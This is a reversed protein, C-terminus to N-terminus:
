TGSLIHMNRLNPDKIRDNVAYALPELEASASGLETAIDEAIREIIAQKEEAESDSNGSSILQELPEAWGSYKPLSLLARFSWKYYPMYKKSLLFAIQLASKAFEIAALQAAATDGRKLCRGYNYQGSQAALLLQGALKKLRIEEPYYSLRSRIRSVEGLNDAFIEGNVAEFFANDPLSLWGGLTLSGDGSGVKSEFFDATRIVGHRSGGVPNVRSREYGMFSQPLKNYARELLFATKSDVVSEDPLFICFAPEFDHDRSLRDDFGYCESGSGVLGVAILPFLEPFDRKLMPEGCEKYFARALELGKM